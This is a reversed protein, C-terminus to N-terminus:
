RTFTDWALSLSLLLAEARVRRRVGGNDAVTV